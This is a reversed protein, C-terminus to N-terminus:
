ADARPVNLLAGPRLALPDEVGNAFALLRWRTADGYYQASIRDLTEGPQVRHVRHPLPTGSTPNQPGYARAEKYQTLSLQMTARLPTGTNSFYTFTLTLREVNAVLTYSIASQVTDTGAGADEIVVDGASGVVYTDNGTGGRMVDNGGGGDLIDNGAASQLYNNLGNGTGRFSPTGDYILEELNAALTLVTLTTFVTDYGEGALEFARDGADDLYYTDDGKEGYLYDNGLDGDLLDDGAGGDIDNDLANGIGTFNGAGDYLLDEVSAPLTYSSLITYVTDIGEGAYEIVEDGTSDVFYVDWGTGGHMEDWGTGGDLHDDGSGGVLLDDGADGFLDDHGGYGWIHDHGEFGEILDDYSTGDIDDNYWTGQIWAM